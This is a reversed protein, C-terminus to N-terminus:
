VDVVTRTNQGHRGRLSLSCHSPILSRLKIAMDEQTMSKGRVTDCADEIDECKVFGDTRVELIYYDWSDNIPCRGHVMTKHLVIM